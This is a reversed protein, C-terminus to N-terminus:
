SEFHPVVFPALAARVVMPMKDVAVFTDALKQSDRGEYYHACIMLIAQKLGEPVATAAGYGATYQIAIANIPRLATPWTSGRRLALRPPESIIDAIYTTSDMETETDDDDYSKLSAIATVPSYPIQFSSDNPPTFDFWSRLVRTIFARHTWAEAERVATKLLIELTAAESNDDIRLFEKLEAISVPDAAAATVVTTRPVMVPTNGRGRRSEDLYDSIRMDRFLPM